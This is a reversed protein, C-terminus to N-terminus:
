APTSGLHDFEGQKVGALFMGIEERSYRLHVGPAKSDRMLIWEGGDAMEVCSGTAHCSTAKLWIPGVPSPPLAM